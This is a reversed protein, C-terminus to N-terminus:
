RSFRSLEDWDNGTLVPGSKWLWFGVVVVEVVTGYTHFVESAMRRIRVGSIPILVVNQGVLM